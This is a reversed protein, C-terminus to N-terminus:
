IETGNVPIDLRQIGEEAPEHTPYLELVREYLGYAEEVAGTQEAIVALGFIAEFHDPNLALTHELSDVALGLEGEAYYAQARGHWGEAFEPAHDTLASFHGIAEDLDQTELADRGRQLLLDMSPSGTRSWELGLERAIRKADTPDADHLDQLLQGSSEAGATQAVAAGSLGPTVAGAALFAAVIYNLHSTSASM